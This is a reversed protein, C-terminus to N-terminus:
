KICGAVLVCLLPLSALAPVSSSNRQQLEILFLSVPYPTPWWECIDCWVPAVNLANNRWVISNVFQVFYSVGTWLMYVCTGANWAQLHWPLPILVLFFVWSRSFPSSRIHQIWATAWLSHVTLPSPHIAKPPVFLRKFGTEDKNDPQGQLVIILPTRRGNNCALWQTVDCAPTVNHSRTDIKVLSWCISAETCFHNNVVWQGEAAISIAYLHQIDRRQKGNGRRLNQAVERRWETACDCWPSRRYMACGRIGGPHEARRRRQALVM